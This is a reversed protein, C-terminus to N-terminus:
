SRRKRAQERHQENWAKREELATEHVIPGKAAPLKQTWQKLLGQTLIFPASTAMMQRYHKNFESGSDVVFFLREVEARAIGAQQPTIEQLETLIDIDAILSSLERLWHYRQSVMIVQLWEGPPVNRGNEKDFIDKQHDLIEKQLTMLSSRVQLATEMIEQATM